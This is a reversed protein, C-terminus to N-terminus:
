GAPCGEPCASIPVCNVGQAPPAESLFLYRLLFVADSVDMLQDGNVDLLKTNAESTGCPLPMAQKFLHLLLGIADSVTLKRDQNLDGPVQRPPALDDRGPSGGVEYSARWSTSTGWTSRAAKPDVIVLSYGQGNTTPWWTSQYAFNLLSEDLPGLLSVTQTRNNLAATGVFKGAVKVQDGYRAAFAAPNKVVVVYEGAELRKVTGDSFSFLPLKDMRAGTLDIPGDSVNKFEIFEYEQAGFTDGPLAMPNYMVETIVLPLLETIVSTIFL